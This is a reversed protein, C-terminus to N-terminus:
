RALLLRHRNGSREALNALDGVWHIVRDWMITSVPGIEDEHEFLLRMVKIAQIDTQTEAENLEDIMYMVKESEPGRFGAELLEDLEEMIKGLHNCVGVCKETLELLPDFVADPLSMPRAVMMGAIDQATDAISDQLDLIELLDRRGVPMFISKPLHARLENKIEDAKNELAYIRERSAEVGGEDKAKVAEFLTQVENASEIAIRVHEQLPKFPSQAFLQM